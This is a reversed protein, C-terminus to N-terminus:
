ESKSKNMISIFVTEIADLMQHEFPQLTIRRSRAWAEVGEHSIPNHGYGNGSRRRSMDLFYNWLYRVCQDCEVPQLEPPMKDPDFGDQRWM